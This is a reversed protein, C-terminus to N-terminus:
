RKECFYLQVSLIMEANWVINRARRFRYNFVFFNLIL